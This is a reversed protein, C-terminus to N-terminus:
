KGSKENKSRRGLKQLQEDIWELVKKALRMLSKSRKRKTAHETSLVKEMPPKPPEVLEEDDDNGFVEELVKEFVHQLWIIADSDCPLWGCKFKQRIPFKCFNIFHLVTGDYAVRWLM